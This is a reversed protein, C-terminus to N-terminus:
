RARPTGEDRPPVCEGKDPLKLDYEPPSDGSITLRVGSYGIMLAEPAVWYARVAAFRKKILRVFLRYLDSSFVSSSVTGIRGHLYVDNHWRGGPTFVVSDPCTLQNFISPRARISIMNAPVVLYTAGAIANPHPAIGVNPIDRFSTYFNVQQSLPSIDIYAINSQDEMESCIPELDHRTAFFLIQRSSGRM